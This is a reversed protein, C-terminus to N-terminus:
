ADLTMVSVDIDPDRGQLLDTAIRASGCAMTWGMHGQGTNYYLNALRGRGFVPTGRPTMPRLCARFTARSRDTAGPLLDDVADLMTTCDAPACRLDYGAFEAVATARLEDGLRAWAVLNDEDVVGLTPAM